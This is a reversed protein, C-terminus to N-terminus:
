SFMMLTCHASFFSLDKSRVVRSCFRTGGVFIRVLEFVDCNTLCPPSDVKVVPLVLCLAPRLRPRAWFSVLDCPASSFDLVAAARTFKAPLILSSSVFLASRFIVTSIWVQGCAITVLLFILRVCGRRSFSEV